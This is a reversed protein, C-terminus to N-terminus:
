GRFITQTLLFFNLAIVLVAIAWGALTTLPRNVLDRMIARSRTFLIVPILAFPLGFSLVVQSIVLVRTPDWGLCVIVMSPLITIFRRVWIPINREIFGQMIVQGAMTGVTTSALGSVLLSIGFIWGAAPGLLPQLTRYADQLSGVQGIRTGHFTSAAMLLMAANVLGAVVMAIAVDIVEFALLGRRLKPDHVSIRGQTLSSHLFIVHPMITAGLIGTALLVSEPGAFRPVAVAYAVTGWDPRSLFIEAVYCLAIVSMMGSIVAELPRFGRAQLALILFTVIITPIGSVWLPFGFLLSFGLAAGLFEAVDTAIAVFEMIVWMTWVLAPHFHIRCLEALNHGTAIGLKASLMQVLMAMVNSVVVVWILTYGFKAGGDINTAFNGPDVYAVSAVFAPGLFPWLRALGKKRSEGSLIEHASAVTVSDHM